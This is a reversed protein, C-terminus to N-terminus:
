LNLKGTVTNWLNIKETVTNWLNIKGITNMYDIAISLSIVLYPIHNYTSFIADSYKVLPSGASSAPVTNNYYTRVVYAGTTHWEILWHGYGQGPWTIWRGRM